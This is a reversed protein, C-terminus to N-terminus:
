GIGKEKSRKALRDLSPTIINPNNLAQITDFRQDDTFIYIVNPKKSPEPSAALVRTIPIAAAVMAAAFLFRGRTM